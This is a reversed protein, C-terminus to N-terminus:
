NGRLTSGGDGSNGFKADGWISVGYRTIVRTGERGFGRCDRIWEAEIFEVARSIQYM